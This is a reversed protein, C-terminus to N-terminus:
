RVRADDPSTAALAAVERVGPAGRSSPFRASREASGLVVCAEAVRRAMALEAPRGWSRPDYRVKAVGAGPDETRGPAAELHVEIAHTFAHQADTDLNLKVVGNAVAARIEAVTSGSSGHFVFDFGRGPHRDTAASQLDGLLEPRLRVSGRPM